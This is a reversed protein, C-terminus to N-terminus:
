FFISLQDRYKPQDEAAKLLLDKGEPLGMETAYVGCLWEWDGAADSPSNKVFTLAIRVLEAPPFDNWRQTQSGIAFQLEISDQDARHIGKVPIKAGAVNGVYGIKNFDTILKSKFDALWSAIQILKALQAKQAPTSVNTAQLIPVTEEFQGAKWFSIIQQKAAILVQAEKQAKKENLSIAEVSNSDIIKQVANQMQDFYTQIKGRTQLLGRNKQLLLIFNKSENVTKVGSFAANSQDYLNCDNLYKNAITKYSNVWDDQSNQKSDIFIQFYKKADSFDGLLWDKLGFVFYALSEENDTSFDEQNKGTIEQNASLLAGVRQYFNVEQTETESNSFNSKESLSRFTNQAASFHNDLLYSLGLNFLIKSKLSSPLTEKKLNNLQLLHQFGIRAGAIDGSFLHRLSNSFQDNQQFVIARQRELNVDQTSEIKYEKHFQHFISVILCIVLVILIRLMNKWKLSLWRMERIIIVEKKRSVTTINKQLQLKAYKLHEILEDYSQYRDDPNKNLMRNIVYATPSSIDPAFSQLSVPRSKLHKLAVLPAEKAEYPPRGALAHFLTGGLSYIDSRFDEPKRDLKEPAVYYPTGWIEGPLAGQESLIALGFDVIKATHADALLINGPKVDRHILGRQFAAQLGLATQIGIDLVQIEAVNGQLTMLEDLSGKDVLEMAIYFLGHDEGFSFVKVVHPHIVSATIRAEVEFKKIFDQDNCYERKLLKLAIPRNLNLDIARFVSGMGGRGLKSEIVLHGFQTRARIATGCSSCYIREFPEYDSVDLLAACNPCPQLIPSEAM